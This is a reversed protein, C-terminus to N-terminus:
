EKAQLADLWDMNNVQKQVVFHTLLGFSIAFLLTKLWLGPPAVLPLRFLDSAYATAIIMTVAYGLPMGLVAGLVTTILSERLLLSGVEWPSYGLVRLTSLERQREALSVLSANLISGFFVIGTFLVFVNIVVSQTKVITDELTAIMDSRATVAQLAPLQKLEGLLAERHGPDHDTALQLGNVALEEGVLGSLYDIDAYVYMGLYSDAIAEVPVYRVRRDGKIPEVGVLDGRAAGLTEAMRRSMALGHPPIRLPRGALDRPVTLRAHSVLGLVAGKKECAGHTFKCAVTFTPEVYDVGPLKGADRVAEDGREDKLSLELDNRMIKRFQFDIMYKMAEQMMFGNVMVSAGMAAAFISAMTRLRARLLNRLVMRWGSSLSRWFWGIRELLVGGGSRPQAPRMAEAPNLRLVARSGHLSGVAACGLSVLTGVACLDWRLHAELAPFEFFQQYIATMGKSMWYGAVCGAVAGSIGVALGFKLFHWSVQLDSYGLAKLTGVVMRQQQALRSLLVNLVLAAVGLFMGPSIVAFSRVGKIEQSLFKNSMQEDLPTTTFVGYPELMLEARRLVESPSGHAAASLRGLVQNASGKFDFTEEAFSHKVYFVGFHKPDPTISGPSILDVFESSIATGVVFLEQQQNNMVLRIWQGPQLRHRAAFAENVIVENARRDTFYSGQRVVVDNIISGRRDPLSLVLGNLPESAGDLDVTVTQQIRPRIEAVEPLEALRVLESIPVKKLEISFDAMRCQAYYLTKAESLNLYASALAVLCAVGVAIIGTVALLMGLHGRVERLLKRDLVKVV